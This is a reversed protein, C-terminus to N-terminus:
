PTQKMGDVVARTVIANTFTVTGPKVLADEGTGATV